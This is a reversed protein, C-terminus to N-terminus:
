DEHIEDINCEITKIYLSKNKETRVIAYIEPDEKMRKICETTKGTRRGGINIEM